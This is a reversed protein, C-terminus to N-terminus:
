KEYEVRVQALLDEGENGSTNVPKTRAAALADQAKKLEAKLRELEASVEADGESESADENTQETSAEETTSEQQWANDLAEAFPRLVEEVMDLIADKNEIGEFKENAKGGKIAAKLQDIIKMFDNKLESFFTKNGENDPKVEARMLTSPINKFGFSRIDAVSAQVPESNMLEDVLGEALAEEGTMWYDGNAWLSTYHEATKGSRQAYISALENSVKDLADAQERLDKANGSAESWAAHIIMFSSKAMKLKGPSACMAIVSAISAAFGIIEVEKEAKHNKLYNYLALGVMVDGGLSNIVIKIKSPNADKIKDITQQVLNEFEWTEWNFGDYIFDTFHLELTSSNAESKIGIYSKAKTM